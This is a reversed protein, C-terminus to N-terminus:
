MPSPLAGATLPQLLRSPTPEYFAFKLLIRTEPIAQDLRMVPDIIPAQKRGRHANM